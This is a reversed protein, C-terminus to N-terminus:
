EIYEGYPGFDVATSIIILYKSIWIQEVSQFIVSDVNEKTNLEQSSVLTM